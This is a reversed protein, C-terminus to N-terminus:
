SLVDQILETGGNKVRTITFDQKFFVSFNSGPVNTM